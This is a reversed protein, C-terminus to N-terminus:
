LIYKKETDTKEECKSHNYWNKKYWKNSEFKLVEYKETVDLFLLIHYLFVDRLETSSLYSSM